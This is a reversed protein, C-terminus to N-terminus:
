GCRHVAAFETVWEQWLGKAAKEASARGVKPVPGAVIRLDSGVLHRDPPRQETVLVQGTGRLEALAQAFAADDKGGVQVALETVFLAPRTSRSLATLIRLSVPGEPAAHRGSM